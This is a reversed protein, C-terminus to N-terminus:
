HSLRRSAPWGWCPYWCWSRRFISLVGYYTLSAARDQLFDDKFERVTRRGAALWSGGGLDTPKGPAPGRGPRAAPGGAAGGGGTKEAPAEDVTDPEAM